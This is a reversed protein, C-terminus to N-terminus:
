VCLCLECGVRGKGGEGKPNLIDEGRGATECCRLKVGPRSAEHMELFAAAGSNSWVPVSVCPKNDMVLLSLPEQEVM